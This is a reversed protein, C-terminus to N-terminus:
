PAISFKELRLTVPHGHHEAPMLQELTAVATVKASDGQEKLDQRLRKLVDSGNLLLKEDTGELALAPSGNWDVLWGTAEVRIERPTYGARKVAPVIEELSASVGKKFQLEARGADVYVKVDRVGEVRELGKQLGYACFACALGDVKVTVKNIQAQSISALLVISALTMTIKRM